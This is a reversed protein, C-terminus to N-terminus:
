STASRPTASRRWRFRDVAFRTPSSAFTSKTPMGLGLELNVEEFVCQRPDKRQDLCGPESREDVREGIVIEGIVCRQREPDSVREREILCHEIGRPLIM